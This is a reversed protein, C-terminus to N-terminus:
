SRFGFYNKGSKLHYLAEAALVICFVGLIMNILESNIIGTYILFCGVLIFFVQSFM